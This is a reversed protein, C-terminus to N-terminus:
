AAAKGEIATCRGRLFTAVVRGPLTMGAYPTNVSLSALAGPDVTIRAKPDLM